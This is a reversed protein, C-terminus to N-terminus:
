KWLKRAGFILLVAGITAGIITGIMGGRENEGTLATMLFGVILSGAIGLLITTLCGKPERDTGPTIAKALAGAVLGVIIWWLLGHPM